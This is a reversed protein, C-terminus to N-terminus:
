LVPKAEVSTLKLLFTKALGCKKVCKKVKDQRLFTIKIKDNQWKPTTVTSLHLIIVCIYANFPGSGALEIPLADAKSALSGIKVVPTTEKAGM